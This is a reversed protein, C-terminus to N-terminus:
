HHLKTIDHNSLGSITVKTKDGLTVTHAKAKDGPLMAKISAATTGAVNITDSSLGAHGLGHTGPVAHELSKASGSLVTDNGVNTAFTSRAGGIFTDHGAGHILTSSGLGAHHASGGIMTASQKIGALTSGLRGSTSKIRSLAQLAAHREAHSLTSLGHQIGGPMSAPIPM